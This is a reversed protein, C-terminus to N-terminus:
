IGYVCCRYRLQTGEDANVCSRKRLQTSSEYQTSSLWYQATHAGYIRIVGLADFHVLMPLTRVRSSAYYAGRGMCITYLIGHM